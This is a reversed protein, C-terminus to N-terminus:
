WGSYWNSQQRYQFGQQQFFIVSDANRPMQIRRTRWLSPRRETPWMADEWQGEVPRISLSADRWASVHVPGDGRAALVAEGEFVVSDTSDIQSVDVYEGQSYRAVKSACGTAGILAVVVAGLAFARFGLSHLRSQSYHAM